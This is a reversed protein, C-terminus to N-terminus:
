KNNNEPQNVKTNQKNLVIKCLSNLQELFIEESKKAKIRVGIVVEQMLLHLQEDSPEINNQFSYQIQM